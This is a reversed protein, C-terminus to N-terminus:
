ALQIENDLFETIYDQVDGQTLTLANWGMGGACAWFRDGPDRDMVGADILDPIYWTEYGTIGGEIVALVPRMASQGQSIYRDRYRVGLKVLVDKPNLGESNLVVAEFNRPMVVPDIDCYGRKNQREIVIKKFDIAM